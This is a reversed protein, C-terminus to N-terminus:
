MLHCLCLDAVIRVVASMTDRWEAPWSPLSPSWTVQKPTVPALLQSQSSFRRKKKRYEPTNELKIEKKHILFRGNSYSRFSLWCNLKLAALSMFPHLFQFTEWTGATPSSVSAPNRTTLSLLGVRGVTSLIKTLNTARQIPKLHKLLLSDAIHAGGLQKRGQNSQGMANSCCPWM